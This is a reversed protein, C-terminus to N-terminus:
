ESIVLLSQQANPLESKGMVMTQTKKAYLKSGIKEEIVNVNNKEIAVIGDSFRLM